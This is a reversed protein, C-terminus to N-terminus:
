TFFGVTNVKLAQWPHCLGVKSCRCSLQLPSRLSQFIWISLQSEVNSCRSNQFWSILFGWFRANPGTDCQPGSLFKARVITRTTTRWTKWMWLNFLSSCLRNCLTQQKKRCVPTSRHLASSDINGQIGNLIFSQLLHNKKYRQGSRKTTPHISHQLNDWSFCSAEEPGHRYLSWKKVSGGAMPIGLSTDLIKMSSVWGWWGEDMVWTTQNQHAEEFLCRTEVISFHQLLRWTKQACRLEVIQQYLNTQIWFCTKNAKDVLHEWFNSSVHGFLHQPYNKSGKGKSSDIWSPNSQCTKKPIIKFSAHFIACIELPIGWMSTQETAVSMQKTFNKMPKTLVTGDTRELCQRRYKSSKLKRCYFLQLRSIWFCIYAFTIVWNPVLCLAFM